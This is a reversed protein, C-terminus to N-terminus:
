RSRGCASMSRGGRLADLIVGEPTSIATHVAGSRLADSIEEASDFVEVSVELGADRFYGADVALWLPVCFVTRAVTRVKVPRRDEM